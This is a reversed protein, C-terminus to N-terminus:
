FFFKIFGESKSFSFIIRGRLFLMFFSSDEHNPFSIVFSFITAVWLRLELVATITELFTPVARVM